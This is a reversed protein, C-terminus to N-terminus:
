MGQQDTVYVDVIWWQNQSPGLKNRAATILNEHDQARLRYDIDVDLWNFAGDRQRPRVRTGWDAAPVLVPVHCEKMFRQCGQIDMVKELRAVNRRDDMQRRFSRDFSLRSIDVRASVEFHFHTEQYTFLEHEAAEVQAQTLRPM